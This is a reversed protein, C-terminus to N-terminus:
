MHSIFGYYPTTIEWSQRNVYQTIYNYTTNKISYINALLSPRPPDKFSYSYANAMYFPKIHKGVHLTSLSEKTQEPFVM